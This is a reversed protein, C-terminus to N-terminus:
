IIAIEWVQRVMLIVQSTQSALMGLDKGQLNRNITDPTSAQSDLNKTFAWKIKPVPSCRGLTCDNAEGSRERNMEKLIRTRM